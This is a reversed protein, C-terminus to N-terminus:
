QLGARRSLASSCRDALASPRRCTERASLSRGGCRLAVVVGTAVRTTDESEAGVSPACCPRRQEPQQRWRRRSAAQPRRRRSQAHASRPSQSPRRGRAACTGCTAPAAAPSVGPRSRHRIEGMHTNRIANNKGACQSTGHSVMRDLWLVHASMTIACLCRSQVRPRWFRSDWCAITRGGKGIAWTAFWLFFFFILFFSVVGRDGGGVLGGVAADDVGGVGGLCAAAVDARGAGGGAGLGGVLAVDGAGQGGGGGGGGGEDGGATGADAGGGGHELARGGEAAAAAHVARRAGRPVLAQGGRRRGRRIGDRQRRRPALGALDRARTGKAPPATRRGLATRQDGALRVTGIIPDHRRPTPHANNIRVLRTPPQSGPRLSPQRNPHHNGRPNHNPPRRPPTQPPPPPRPGPTLSGAPPHM